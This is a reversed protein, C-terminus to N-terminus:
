IDVPFTGIGAKRCQFVASPSLSDRFQNKLEEVLTSEGLDSHLGAMWGLGGSTCGGAERLNPGHGDLLLPM